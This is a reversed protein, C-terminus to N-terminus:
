DFSLQRKRRGLKAFYPTSSDDRTPQQDSQKAKAAERELERKTPRPKIVKHCPFVLKRKIEVGSCTFVLRRKIPPVDLCPDAKEVNWMIHEVLSMSNTMDHMAMEVRAREVDVM